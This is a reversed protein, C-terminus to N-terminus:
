AVFGVLCCCVATSRSFRRHAVGLYRRLIVDCAVARSVDVREPLLLFQGHIQAHSFVCSM